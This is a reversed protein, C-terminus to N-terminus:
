KRTAKKTDKKFVKNKLEELLVKTEEDIRIAERVADDAKKQAENKAELAIRAAEEAKKQAELAAIAEEKAKTALEKAVKVKDEANKKAVAAEKLIRNEEIERETYKECSFVLM